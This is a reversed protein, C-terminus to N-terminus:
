HATAPITDSVTTSPRSTTSIWRWSPPASRSMGPPGDFLARRNLLRTLADTMAESKHRNAIRAQNLTLSLTGIGTLGAIVVISNVDEAWNSPRATLIFQGQEALAYGCAVFSASAILYLTANAAM